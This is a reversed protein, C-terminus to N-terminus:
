LPLGRSLSAPRKKEVSASLTGSYRETRRTSLQGKKHLTLHPQGKEHLKIWKICPNMALETNECQCPFQVYEQM